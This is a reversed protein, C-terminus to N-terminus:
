GAEDEGHGQKRESQPSKVSFGEARVLVDVGRGERRLRPPDSAAVLAAEGKFELISNWSTERRQMM